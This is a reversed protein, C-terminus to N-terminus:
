YYEMINKINKIWEDKSPGKPQKWSPSQKKFTALVSAKRQVILFTNFYFLRIPHIFHPLPDFPVLHLIFLDQPHFICRPSQLEYYQITYKFTASLPPKLIREMLFFFHTTIQTFQDQPSRKEICASIPDNDQVGSVLIM